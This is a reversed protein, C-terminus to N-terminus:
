RADTSSWSAETRQAQAPNAARGARTTLDEDFEDVIRPEIVFVGHERVHLAMRVILHLDDVADQFPLNDAPHLDDLPPSQRM